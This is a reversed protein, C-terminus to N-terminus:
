PSTGPRRQRYHYVLGFLAAGAIIVAPHWNSNLSILLAVAALGMSFNDVLVKKGLTLAAAFILAVVAPRIGKFFDLVIPGPTTATLTAALLTIIIFSPLVAGLTAVAVGPLGLLKYGTFIATNIAIAGPSSQAVALVDIFEQESQWGRTHVIEREIVPLMSLGGGFTFAGVKCFSWFLATLTPPTPHEM